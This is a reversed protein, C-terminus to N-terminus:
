LFACLVLCSFGSETNKLLLIVYMIFLNVSSVAYLRRWIISWERLVDSVEHVVSEEKPLVVEDPRCACM